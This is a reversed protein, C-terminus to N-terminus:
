GPYQGTIFTKLQFIEQSQTSITWNVLDGISVVGLLTEGRLVPLHRIRHTTMLRMCEAVSHEPTVTIVPSTLAEQVKTEKSSKGKLAVKRTYDRESVIGVVRGLAVVVLAGVNKEDM